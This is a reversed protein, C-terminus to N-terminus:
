VSTMTSVLLSDIIINRSNVTMIIPKNTQEHTVDLLTQQWSEGDFHVVTGRDGVAFIDNASTGWLGNLNSAVGDVKAWSQSPANLKM